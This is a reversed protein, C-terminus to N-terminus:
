KISNKKDSKRITEAGIYPGTLITLGTALSIPEFKFALGIVFTIFSVILVLLRRSKTM